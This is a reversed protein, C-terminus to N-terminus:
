VIRGLCREVSATIEQRARLQLFAEPIEFGNVVMARRRGQDSGARALMWVVASGILLAVVWGMGSRM